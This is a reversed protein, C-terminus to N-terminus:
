RPRAPRPCAGSPRVPPTRALTTIQASYRELVAPPADAILEDAAQGGRDWIPTAIAGPEILIVRIGSPALEARLTDAMGVLGFKSAHYAGLMPQAIRGGISGIMVIRADAGQERAQRLAPLM